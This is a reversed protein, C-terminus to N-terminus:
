FCPIEKCCKIVAVKPPSRRLLFCLHSIIFMSLRSDEDDVYLHTSRFIFIRVDLGNSYLGFYEMIMVCLSSQM